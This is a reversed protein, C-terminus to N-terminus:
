RPSTPSPGAPPSSTVPSSCASGPQPAPSQEAISGAPTTLSPQSDHWCQPSPRPIRSVNLGQDKTRAIGIDDNIPALAILALVTNAIMAALFGAGLAGLHIKNLTM